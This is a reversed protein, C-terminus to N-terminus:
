RYFNFVAQYSFGREDQALPVLFIDLEGMEGHALTYTNQPMYIDAPGRFTLTFREMGQQEEPRTTWGQVEVLEIEFPRPAEARVGFKTGLQKRFDEETPQEAM